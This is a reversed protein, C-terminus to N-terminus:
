CRRCFQDSIKGNSYAVIYNAIKEQHEREVEAPDVPPRIDVPEVVSTAEDSEEYQEEDFEYEVEEQEQEEEEISALLAEIVDETVDPDFIAELIHEPLSTLTNLLDPPPTWTARKAENDFFFYRGHATFM